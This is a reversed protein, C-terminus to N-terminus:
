RGSSGPAARRRLSPVIRQVFQLDRELLSGRSPLVTRRPQDVADEAIQQDVHGAVRVAGLEADVLQERGVREVPRQAQDLEAAELHRRVRPHAQRLLQQQPRQDGPEPLLGVRLRQDAPAGRQVIAEHQRVEDRLIEVVHEVFQAVGAIASSCAHNAGCKSNRKGSIPSTACRPM